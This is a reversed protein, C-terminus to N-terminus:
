FRYKGQIGGGFNNYNYDFNRTGHAYADITGRGDRTTYLNQNLQVSAQRGFQDKNFDASAGSGASWKSQVGGGFANANHDFNRSAHANADLSRDGNSYINQKYQVSAVRGNQDKRYDVGVSGGDPSRVHRSLPLAEYQQLQIGQAAFGDDFMEIPSANAVILCAAMLTICKIAFM